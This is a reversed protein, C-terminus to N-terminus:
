RSSRPLLDCNIEKYKVFLVIYYYNVLVRLEKLHRM